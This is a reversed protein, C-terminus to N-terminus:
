QQNRIFHKHLPERTSIPLPDTHANLDEFPNPSPIATPTALGHATGNGSNAGNGGDQNHTDDKEKELNEELQPNIEIIGSTDIIVTNGDYEQDEQEFELTADSIIDPIEILEIIDAVEQTRLAGLEIDEPHFLKSDDFRVDRTCIVRKKLSLWIRFINTSDYEVLYGIQAWPLMKEKRLIGHEVAYARCGFPYTHGM